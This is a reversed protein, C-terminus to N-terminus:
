SALALAADYSVQQSKEGPAPRWGGLNRDGTADGAAAAAHAGTGRGSQAPGNSSQRRVAVSRLTRVDFNQSVAARFWRACIASAM